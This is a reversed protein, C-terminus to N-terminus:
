NLVCEKKIGGENVEWLRKKCGDSAYFKGDNIM